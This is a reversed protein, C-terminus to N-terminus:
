ADLLWRSRLERVSVKEPIPVATSLDMTLGQSPNAADVAFFDDDFPRLGMANLANDLLEADFRRAKLTARYRSVDEFPLPKGQEFFEWRGANFGTGVLRERVGNCTLMFTFGGGRGTRGGETSKRLTHAQRRFYVARTKLAATMREASDVWANCDAANTWVVTWKACTPVFVFRLPPHFDVLPDLHELTSRLSTSLRPEDKIGEPGVKWNSSLERVWTSFFARVAPM